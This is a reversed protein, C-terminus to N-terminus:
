VSRARLLHTAGFRSARAHSHATHKRIPLERDLATQAFKDAMVVRTRAPVAPVLLACPSLSAVALMIALRPKIVILALRNSSIMGFYAHTRRRPARTTIPRYRLYTGKRMLMSDLECLTGCM